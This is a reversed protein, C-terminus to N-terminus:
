KAFRHNGIDKDTPRSRIWSGRSVIQPNYFYLTDKSLVKHGNLVRKASEVASNTPKTYISGNNVPSFQGKQFIVKKITNPFDDSEVRNLIVNGVAVQGEGCEGKAEASIIHSLWYLEDGENAVDKISENPVAVVIKEKTGVEIGSNHMQIREGMLEHTIKYGKGMLEHTIKDEMGYNPIVYYKVPEEVIGMESKAYMWLLIAILLFVLMVPIKSKKEMM